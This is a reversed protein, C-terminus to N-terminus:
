RLRQVYVGQDVGNVLMKYQGNIPYILAKPMYAYGFMLQYDTQQWIQGDALKIITEGEFGNFEGAIQAEYSEGNPTAFGSMQANKLGANYGTFYTEGIVMTIVQKQKKNLEFEGYKLLESTPIFTEFVPIDDAKAIISLFAAAIMSFHKIMRM